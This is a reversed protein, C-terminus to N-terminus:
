EPHFEEILLRARGVDGPELVYLQPVVEVFPLEGVVSSGFENRM